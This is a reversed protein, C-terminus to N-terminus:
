PWASRAVTNLLDLLGLLRAVYRERVIFGGDAGKFERELEDILRRLRRQHLGFHRQLPDTVIGTFSALAATSLVLGGTLGGMLLPSATAPFLGYWLSGLGVGLPFSAIAAHQALVAALSQGLMVAGPTFQKLSAAGAGLTILSTAIEATASRTGAYASLAQKLRGQFAMRARRGVPPLREEIWANLRADALIEEALADRSSVRGRQRCPLELFETKILWVVERAVDTEFLLSRNLLAAGARRAGLARCVSGTIQLAFQPVELFLNAPARLADLGLAQRHLKLTGVLSFHKRVFPAIMAQRAAFYRAAAADVIAAATVRDIAPSWPEM